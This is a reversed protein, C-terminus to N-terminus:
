GKPFGRMFSMLLLTYVRYVYLNVATRVVETNILLTKLSFASRPLDTM